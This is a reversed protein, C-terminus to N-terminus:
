TDLFCANLALVSRNPVSLVQALPVWPGGWQSNGVWGQLCGPWEPGGLRLANQGGGARPQETGM